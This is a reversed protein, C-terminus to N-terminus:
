KCKWQTSLMKSTKIEIYKSINEFGFKKIAESIPIPKGSSQILNQPLPTKWHRSVREKLFPQLIESYEEGNKVREERAVMEKKRMRNEFILRDTDFNAYDQFTALNRQLPCFSKAPCFRCWDGKSASVKKENRQVLAQSILEYLDTTIEVDEYILCPIDKQMNLICLALQKIQISPHSIKLSDKALMAYAVLQYNNAAEVISSGTKFDIVHLTKSEPNYGLVDATGGFLVGGIKMELRKEQVFFSCKEKVAHFYNSCTQESELFQQKELRAHDNVREQLYAEQAPTKKESPLLDFLNCKVYREISSPRFADM